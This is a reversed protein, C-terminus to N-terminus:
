GALYQLAHDMGLSRQLRDTLRVTDLHSVQAALLIAHQCKGSGGEPPKWQVLRYPDWGKGLLVAAIGAHGGRVALTLPSDGCGDDAALAGQKAKSPKWGEETGWPLDAPPKESSAAVMCKVMDQHGQTVAAHLPTTWWVGADLQKSSGSSADVCRSSYAASISFDEWVVKKCVSHPSVQGLGVLLEVLPLCRAKVAGLLVLEMHDKSRGGDYLRVAAQLVKQDLQGSSGLWKSLGLSPQLLAILAEWSAAQQLLQEAQQQTLAAVNDSIARGQNLLWRGLLQQDTASTNATLAVPFVLIVLLEASIRQVAAEFFPELGTRGTAVQLCVCLHLLLIIDV